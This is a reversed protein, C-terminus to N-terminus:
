SRGRGKLMPFEDLGAQKRRLAHAAKAAAGAELAAPDIGAEQLAAALMQLEQPGIEGGEPGGPMGGGMEPGGGMGGM